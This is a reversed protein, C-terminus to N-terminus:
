IDIKDLENLDYQEILRILKTPYEPDTAYGARRLAWAAQTSDHMAERVPQYRERELLFGNYDLWSEDLNNYARFDDDVSYSVGNYVEWTRITVSGAPGQGKIGFLNYSIQGTYKDVGVSQGWGTELIAQSTQMAASLGTELYSERALESAADLFKDKEIVAAKGYIKDLYVRFPIEESRITNGSDDIGEAYIKLYGIDEEKPSYAFDEGADLTFVKKAGTDSNTLVYNVTTLDINSIVSITKEGTIVENPGIGRLLISAKGPLNVKIPNSEMVKSGSYTVRVFVEKEGKYSSDPFWEYGGYAKRELIEEAGTDPDRLVYETEAVDFNRSANLTIPRDITMDQSVGILSLSPSMNVSFDKSDSEYSNGNKDYAVLKISYDGNNKVDPNWSYSGYPDKESPITITNNDLNKIEYEIYNAVFNVDPSVNLINDNDIVEGNKIGSLEVSPKVDMNVAIADASIIQGNNDYIAAVLAKHGIDDVSPLWTYEGDFDKGQGIIKGEATDPDLLLYKILKPDKLTDEGLDVRLGTKGNITQGDEVSTIEMPYFPEVSAPITSEIEVTRTDNDWDIHIGFINSILRIPVFTRDEIIQPSVDSIIHHLKGDKKYNVLQSGIRLNVTIDGKRIEVTEVTGDKPAWDFEAGLEELVFRIPVLTRDNEIVPRPESTIEKGDVVLRFPAVAYSFGSFTQSFLLIGILVAYLGNRVFGIRKM